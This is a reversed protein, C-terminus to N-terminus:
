YLWMKEQPKEEDIDVHIFNNGVGVRRFGADLALQVMKFREGSTPCHLDAAMGTTHASDAVGGVLANYPICRCGSNITIPKGGERRMYELRSVLFPKVDDFGCGCKCRFEWRSFHESLDGM